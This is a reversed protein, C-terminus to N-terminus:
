SFDESIWLSGEDDHQTSLPNSACLYPTAGGAKLTQMLIATESTVHLCAAINLGKLPKKKKFEEKILRLVPMEGAAWEIRKRGKDALKVDKIHYKM